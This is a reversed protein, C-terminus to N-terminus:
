KKKITPDTPDWNQSRSLKQAKPKDFPGPNKKNNYIEVQTGVKCNDYIWKADGARLRVCGHSAMTGLKNYASVDLSRNDNKVNYYVSHFLIDDTLHECWQGWCPGMLEHWRLKDRIKFKGVPTGKGASCVFAIVPITYGRNGDKAYVTVCSATRNVRIYYSSKQKKTLKKTVNQLLQGKKDFYFKYEGVYNWGIMAAFSKKDFYYRKNKADRYWGSKLAGKNTFLYYKGEVKEVGNGKYMEGTAQMFYYYTNKVKVAGTKLSYDKDDFYYTKGEIKAKGHKKYLFGDADFYYLKGEIRQIGTVAEGSVYYSTRKDNWGDSIDKEGNSPPTPGPMDDNDPQADIVTAMAPREISLITCLALATCFMMRLILKRKKM